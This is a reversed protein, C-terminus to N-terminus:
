VNATCDRATSNYTRVASIRWPQLLKTPGTISPRHSQGHTSSLASIASDNLNSESLRRRTQKKRSVIKTDKNSKFTSDCWYCTHCYTSIPSSAPAACSCSNQTFATLAGSVQNFDLNMMYSGHPLIFLIGNSYEPVCSRHVIRTNFNTKSM